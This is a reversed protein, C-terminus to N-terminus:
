KKLTKSKKLMAETALQGIRMADKLSIVVGAAGPRRSLGIHVHGDSLEVGKLPNLLPNFLGNESRTQVLSPKQNKSKSTNKPQSPLVEIIKETKRQVPKSQDNKLSNLRRISDLTFASGNNEPKVSIEISDKKPPKSAGKKETTAPKEKEQIVLSPIAGDSLIKPAEEKMRYRHNMPGNGLITELRDDLILEKLELIIEPRDMRTERMLEHMFVWGDMSKSQLRETMMSEATRAPNSQFPNGAWRANQPIANLM